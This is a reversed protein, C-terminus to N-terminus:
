SPQSSRYEILAQRIAAGLSLQDTGPLRALRAAFSRELEAGGVVDTGALHWGHVFCSRSPQLERQKQVRCGSGNPSLGIAQPAGM